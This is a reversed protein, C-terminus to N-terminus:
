RIYLIMFFLALFALILYGKIMLKDRKIKQSLMEIEKKFSISKTLKGVANKLNLRMLEDKIIYDKAGRKLCKIAVAIESQSSLMIVKTLPSLENIKNLVDLGDMSASGEKETFLYFDLIVIDPQIHLNALCSKADKFFYLKLNSNMKFTDKVVEHTLRDDDVCFIIYPDLHQQRTAKKSLQLDPTVVRKQQKFTTLNKM